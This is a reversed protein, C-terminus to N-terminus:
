ALCLARIIRDRKDRSDRQTVSTSVLKDRKDRQYAHTVDRINLYINILSKRRLM